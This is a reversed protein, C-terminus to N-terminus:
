DRARSRKSTVQGVVASVRTHDEINSPDGYALVKARINREQTSVGVINVRRGNPHGSATGPVITEVAFVDGEGDDDFGETVDIGSDAVAKALAAAAVKHTTKTCHDAAIYVRLTVEVAVCTQAPWHFPKDEGFRAAVAYPGCGALQDDDWDYGSVDPINDKILTLAHRLDEPLSARARRVKHDCWRSVGVWFASQCEDDDDDLELGDDGHIAEDEIVLGSMRRLLTMALANRAVVDAVVYGFIRPTPADPELPLVKDLIPFARETEPDCVAFWAQWPRAQLNASLWDRVRLARAVRATLYAANHHVVADLDDHVQEVIDWVQARVEPRWRQTLGRDDRLADMVGWLAGLVDEHVTPRFTRTYEGSPVHRPVDHEDYQSVIHDLLRLVHLTDAHLSQIGTVTIGMVCVADAGVPTTGVHARWKPAAVTAPLQGAENSIRLQRLTWEHVAYHRQSGSDHTSPQAAVREEVEPRCANRAFQLVQRWAATTWTPPKADAIHVEVASWFGAIDADAEPRFGVGLATDMDAGVLTYCLRRLIRRTEPLLEVGPPTNAGAYIRNM